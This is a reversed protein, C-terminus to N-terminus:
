AFRLEGFYEPRHFDPGPTGVPSWTGWAPEPGLDCCKYFNARWTTGPVPIPCGTHAAFFPLPVSYEVVYGEAPGAAPEPIARGAPLSTAIRIGSVAEAPIPEFRRVPRCKFLLLTGICNIEFNLYAADAPAVFFEVCSDQCVPGQYEVNRAVIRREVAHFRVYLKRPSYLLRAEVRPPPPDDPRRWPYLDVGAAEARDWVPKVRAGDVEFDSEVRRVHYLKM